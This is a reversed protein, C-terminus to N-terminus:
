CDCYRCGLGDIVEVNYFGSCVNGLTDNNLSDNEYWNYNYPLIRGIANVIASGTCVLVLQPISDTFIIVDPNQVVFM